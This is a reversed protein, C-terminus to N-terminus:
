TTTARRRYAKYASKPTKVYGSKEREAQIRKLEDANANSWFAIGAAFHKGLCSRCYLSGRQLAEQLAQGSLGSHMAMHVTQGAEKYGRDDYRVLDQGSGCKECQQGAFVAAIVERNRQAYEANHVKAKAVYAETNDEYHKKAYARMCAKCKTHRTGRTKNKFSFETEPLQRQCTCCRKLAAPAFSAVVSTSSESADAEPRSDTFM